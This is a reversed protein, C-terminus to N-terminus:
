QNNFLNFLERKWDIQDVEEDLKESTSGTDLDSNSRTSESFLTNIRENFSNFDPHIGHPEIM